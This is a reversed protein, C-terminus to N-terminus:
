TLVLRGGALAAQHAGEMADREAKVIWPVAVSAGQELFLRVIERGLAGTGGTVLIRRGDHTSEPMDSLKGM